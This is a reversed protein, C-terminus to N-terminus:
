WIVAFSALLSTNLLSSSSNTFYKTRAALPPVYILRLKMQSGHMAEHSESTNVTLNWFFSYSWKYNVM